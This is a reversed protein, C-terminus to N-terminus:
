ARSEALALRTFETVAPDEFLEEIQLEAQFEEEVRALIRIASISQGGLEFFTSEPSIDFVGLIESWIDCMRQEAATLTWKRSGESM